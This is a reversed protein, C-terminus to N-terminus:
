PSEPSTEAAGSWAAAALSSSEAAGAREIGSFVIEAVQAAFHIRAYGM